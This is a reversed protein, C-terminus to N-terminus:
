PPSLAPSPLGEGECAQGRGPRLWCGEEHHFHEPLPDEWYVWHADHARRQLLSPFERAGGGLSLLVVMAKDIIPDTSQRTLEEKTTSRIRMDVSVSNAM